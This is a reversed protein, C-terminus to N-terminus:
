RAQASNILVRSLKEFAASDHSNTAVQHWASRLADTAQDGLPAVTVGKRRIEAVEAGQAALMMEVQSPGSRKCAEEVLLQDSRDLGNWRDRRIILDIGASPNLRGPYYLFRTTDLLGLKVGSAPALIQIADIVNGALASYIEGAPLGITSAGARSLIEARVGMSRIKLARFDAASRIPKRSWLDAMAVVGCPLGKLGHSRYLEDSVTEIDDSQRWGLYKEPPPGFPPSDLLHFAADKGGFFSPSVWAFDHTGNAVSDFVQHLPPMEGSPAIEFQMRDSSLAKLVSAFAEVSEPYGVDKAYAGLGRLHVVAGPQPPQPQEGKRVQTAIALMALVVVTALAGVVAARRRPAARQGSAVGGGTGADPGSTSGDPETAYGNSASMPAASRSPDVSARSLDPVERLLAVLQAIDNGWHRVTLELAQRRTLPRLSEPMDEEAPMQAGNVLIPVVRVGPRRLSAEVEMRVFDGPQDLRRRGQRDTISLWAPGVVVLTVAADALAADLAEVFDAGPVINTIDLFVRDRDFAAHLSDAIRAVWIDTDERRYSIFIRSM